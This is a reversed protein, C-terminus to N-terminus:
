DQGAAAIWGRVVELNTELEKAIAEAQKGEKAMEQARKKRNQVARVRCSASCFERNTRFGSKGSIDFWLTCGRCPRFVSNRKVAADLQLWLAVVLTDPLFNSTYKYPWVDGSQSREVKTVLSLKKDLYGDILRKLYWFAQFIPGQKELLDWEDEGLGIVVRRITGEVLAPREPDAFPKAQEVWLSGGREKRQLVVCEEVRRQLSLLYFNSGRTVKASPQQLLQWCFVAARLEDIRKTWDALSLGREDPDCFGKDSNPVLGRCGPVGLSGFQHAFDLIGEKTPDTNALTLFLGPNEMPTFTRRVTTASVPANSPFLIWEDATGKSKILILDEFWASWTM